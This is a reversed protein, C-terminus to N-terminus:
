HLTTYNRESVPTKESNLGHKGPSTTFVSHLQYTTREAQEEAEIHQRRLGLELHGVVPHRHQAHESCRCLLSCLTLPTLLANHFVDQVDLSVQSHRTPKRGQEKSYIMM